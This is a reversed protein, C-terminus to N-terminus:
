LLIRESKDMLLNREVDIEMNMEGERQVADREYDKKDLATEKEM